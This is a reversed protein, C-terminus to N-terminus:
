IYIPKCQLLFYDNFLKVKEKCDTIIKEAVLLPPIRPIRCKNLLNNIIKWYTKPRTTKNILKDGLSKLYNDKSIKIAQYCDDRQKDVM